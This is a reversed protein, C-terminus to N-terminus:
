KAKMLMRETHPRLITTILTPQLYCFYHLFNIHVFSTSKPWVHTIEKSQVLIWIKLYFVEDLHPLSKFFCWWIQRSFDRSLVWSGVSLLLHTQMAMACCVRPWFRFLFVQCLELFIEPEAALYANNNLRRHSLFLRNCQM